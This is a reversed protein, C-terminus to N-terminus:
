PLPGPGDPDPYGARELLRRARAPDHRHIRAPAYAWHEPALLGSAPRAAGGLIFRVVADRDLALAIAERVRRQALRPDRLNLALYDFSSGPGRRVVLHPFRALWDVMEPEPADEILQVGGRKLELVRVVEDPVIRVVLPDLRPPGGPYGPNPELEIRQGREARVVRFPGAGVLRGARSAAQRGRRTAHSRCPSPRGPPRRQRGGRLASRPETPRKATRPRPGRTAGAGRRLRRCADRLAGRPGGSGKRSQSAESAAPVIGRRSDLWVRPRTSSASSDMCIRARKRAVNSAVRAGAAPTRAASASAAASAPWALSKGRGAPSSGCIWKQRAM